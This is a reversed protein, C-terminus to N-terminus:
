WLSQRMRNKLNDTCRKRVESDKTRHLSRPETNNIVVTYTIFLQNEKIERKV